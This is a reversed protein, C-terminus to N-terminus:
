GGQLGRHPELQHSIRRKKKCKIQKAPIPGQRVRAPFKCPAVPLWCVEWVGGGQHSNQQQGLKERRLSISRILDSCGRGHQGPHRCPSTPAAEAAGAWGLAQKQRALGHSATGLGGKSGGGPTKLRRGGLSSNTADADRPGQM